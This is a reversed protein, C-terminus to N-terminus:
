EPALLKRIVRWSYLNKRVGLVFKSSWWRINQTYELAKAFAEKMAQNPSSAPWHSQDWAALIIGRQFAGKLARFRDITREIATPLGFAPHGAVLGSLCYAQGWVCSDEMLLDHVDPGGEILEGHGAHSTIDLPVGLQDAAEILAAGAIKRQTIAGLWNGELDVEWRRPSLRKLISVHEEIGRPRKPPWTMLSVGLELRECTDHAMRSELPTWEWTGRADHVCLVIHDFGISRLTELYGDRLVLEPPDDVYIGRV